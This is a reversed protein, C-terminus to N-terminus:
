KPKVTHKKTVTQTSKKVANHSSKNKKYARKKMAEDVDEKKLYNDITEKSSKKYTNMDTKSKLGTKTYRCSANWLMWTEVGSDFCAQIQEKIQQPGYKVGKMSFDQLWPRLKEVPIRKKAGQLAIYVTRYPEKNPDSIGYEGKAYHSPYIMPSVYDIYKTMEVIKQGIGMDGTETTTLGFVDVSTKIGKPGLREKAQKLFEVIELYATTTSRPVQYRCMKTNGDSPFRIYDFQIEDFGIDATKEAIDLVYDRADQNYPDLWTIKRYDEWLKGEPTKVAMDPRKRPMTDDRFVVIRAITYINKEKLLKVYDEPNPVSKSFALDNNLGRIAIAGDIEKVDIVVANLETNELLNDIYIKIKSSGPVFSTLHIGRANIVSSPQVTNEQINQEFDAVQAFDIRSLFILTVLITFFIVKKM